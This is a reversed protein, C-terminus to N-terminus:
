NLGMLDNYDAKSMVGADNDNDDDDEDDDKGDGELLALEAQLSGRTLSSVPHQLLQAIEL